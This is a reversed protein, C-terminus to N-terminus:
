AAGIQSQSAVDCACISEDTRRAPLSQKTPGGRLCGGLPTGSGGACVGDVMGVGASISSLPARKKCSEDDQKPVAADLELEQSAINQQFVEVSRITEFLGVLM